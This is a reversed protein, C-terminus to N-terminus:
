FTYRQVLMLGSTMAEMSPVLVNGVEGAADVLRCAPEAFDEPTPPRKRLAERLNRSDLGGDPIHSAVPSTSAFAGVGM